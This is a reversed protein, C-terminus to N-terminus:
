IDAEGWFYSKNVYVYLATLTYLAMLLYHTDVTFKVLRPIAEVKAQLLLCLEWIKPAHLLNLNLSVIGTSAILLYMYWTHPLPKLLGYGLYIAVINPVIRFISAYTGIYIKGFFLIPRHLPSLLGGGGAFICLIGLVTVGVPRKM